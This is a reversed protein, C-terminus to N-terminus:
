FVPTPRVTAATSPPSVRLPPSGKRSRPVVNSGISTLWWLTKDRKTLNELTPRESHALGPTQTPLSNLGQQRMVVSLVSGDVGLACGAAPNDSFVRSM